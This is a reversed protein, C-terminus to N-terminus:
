HAAVDRHAAYSVRWSLLRPAIALFVVLSALAFSMGYLVQGLGVDFRALVADIFFYAASFALLVGIAGVVLPLWVWM